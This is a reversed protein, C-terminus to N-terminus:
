EVVKMEDLIDNVKKKLKDNVILTVVGEDPQGYCIKMGNEAYKVCPLVLLDEEGDVLIRWQDKSQVALKVAEEAEQTLEGAANKVHISRIGSKEILEIDEEKAPGRKELKDYIMLIPTQENRLADASCVDGVTVLVGDSPGKKTVQGMPIKLEERLRKNLKYKV